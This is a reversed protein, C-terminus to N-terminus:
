SQLDLVTDSLWALEDEWSAIPTIRRVSFKSAGAGVFEAILQRLADRGTAAPSEHIPGTDELDRQDRAYAITVGFHEPNFVRGAAAAAEQIQQVTRAVEAPSHSGGGRWGDGLRAVREIAKPGSGALWIQLPKQVPLVALAPVGSPGDNAGEPDALPSGAWLARLQTIVADFRRGRHQGAIGLAAREGPVDLGPVLMVRLRGKSLQDLQALQRAFVFPEYGFPVITVGLKVRTTWAAAMAVSLIPDTSPLVTLDSFWLTDFGRREAETVMGHLVDPDPLRAGASVAFRVKM